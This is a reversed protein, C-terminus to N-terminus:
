VHAHIHERDSRLGVGKASAAAHRDAIRAKALCAFIAIYAISLLAASAPEPVAVIRFGIIANQFLAPYSNRHGAELGYLDYFSGGRLGFYNNTLLTENWEWVNGGQDFTGYASTSPKATYSGVAHLEYGGYNASGRELDTGPPEENLPKLNSRTSYEWYPGGNDSKQPDYYAAKYWEDETPLFYKGGPQRHFQDVPDGSRLGIGTYSGSETDANGRGNNFWNVFRAADWVGVYNVPIDDWTPEDPENEKALYVYPEDATGLGTRVIGGYQGAMQDHYLRLPDGIAAKANLFERYQGNTVEYKGIAYSYAVAGFGQPDYRTDPPNGADGVPVFEFAGAGAIAPLACSVLVFVFTDLRRSRNM